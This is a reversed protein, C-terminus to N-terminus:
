IWEGRKSAAVVGKRTAATAITLPSPEFTRAGGVIVQNNLKKDLIHKIAHKWQGYEFEMASLREYKGNHESSRIQIYIRRIIDHASDIALSSEFIRLSESDAIIPTNLRKEIHVFKELWTKDKIYAFCTIIFNLNPFDNM